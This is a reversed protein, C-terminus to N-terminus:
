IGADTMASKVIDKFTNRVDAVRQQVKPVAVQDSVTPTSPIGQNPQQTRAEKALVELPKRFDLGKQLYYNKLQLYAVEPTLNPNQRIMFALTKDHVVSDPYKNVFSNYENTVEMEQQHAKMQNERETEFPRFKDDIMRKIAEAQISPQMGEIDVDIGSSQLSTLLFKVVEKPNKRWGRVFDLGSQIDQPSLDQAHLGEVVGKYQALETEMQQYQQKIQPLVTTTFQQMDRKMRQNEEYIRREAGAKAIVKGNEDVLDQPNSKIQQQGQVIQESKNSPEVPKKNSKKSKKKQGFLDELEEDTDEPIQDTEESDQGDTQAPETPEQTNEDSIDENVVNGLDEDNLQNMNEEM